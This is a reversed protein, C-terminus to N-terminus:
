QVGIDKVLVQVSFFHGVVSIQLVDYTGFIITAAKRSHVYRQSVVSSISTCCCNLIQQPRIGIHAQVPSSTYAHQVYLDTIANKESVVGRPVHISSTYLVVSDSPEIGTGTLSAVGRAVYVYM